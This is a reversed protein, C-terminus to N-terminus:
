IHRAGVDNSSGYDTGNIYRIVGSTCNRNIKNKDSHTFWLWAVTVTVGVEPVQKFLEGPAYVVRELM